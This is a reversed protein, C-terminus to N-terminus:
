RSNLMSLGAFADRWALVKRQFSMRFFAPSPSPLCVLRLEPPYRFRRQFVSMIGKGTFLVTDVPNEGLIREVAETNYVRKLLNGDLNSGHRRDCALIVDTVAMELERFLGKKGEIGSLDHAPFLEGMIPWFQNRPAGYYWDGEPPSGGTSRAGPFSGLFLRRCGPPVFPQFPHSVSVTETHTRM